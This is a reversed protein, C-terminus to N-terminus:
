KFAEIPLIFKYMWYCLIYIMDLIPFFDSFSYTVCCLVFEFGASLILFTIDSLSQNLSLIHCCYSLHQIYSAEFFPPYM